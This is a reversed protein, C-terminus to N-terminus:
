IKVWTKFQVRTFMIRVCQRQKRGTPEAAVSGRGCRSKAAARQRRGCVPPGLSPWPGQQHPDNAREVFFLIRVLSLPSFTNIVWVGFRATFKLVEDLDM